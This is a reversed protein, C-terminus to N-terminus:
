TSNTQTWILQTLNLQYLICLTVTVDNQEMDIGTSKKGGDRLYFSKSIITGTITSLYAKNTLHHDYPCKRLSISEIKNLCCSLDEGNLEVCLITDYGCFPSRITNYTDYWIIFTFATVIAYLAFCFFGLVVKSSLAIYLVSLFFNRILILLINRCSTHIDGLEWVSM